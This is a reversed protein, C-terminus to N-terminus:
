SQMRERVRELALGALRRLQGLDFDPDAPTGPVTAVFWGNWNGDDTWAFQADDGKLLPAKADELSFGVQTSKRTITVGTYLFRKGHEHWLSFSKEEWCLAPTVTQGEDAMEKVDGPKWSEIELDTWIWEWLQRIMIAWEFRTLEAATRAALYDGLEEWELGEPVTNAPVALLAEVGARVASDTLYSRVSLPMDFPQENM